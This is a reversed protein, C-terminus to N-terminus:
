AIFHDWGVSDMDLTNPDRRSKSAGWTVQLALKKGELMLKRTGISPCWSKSWGPNAKERM